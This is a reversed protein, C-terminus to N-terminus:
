LYVSVIMHTENAIETYEQLFLLQIFILLDGTNCMEDYGTLRSMCILEMVPLDRTLIHVSSSNVTKM